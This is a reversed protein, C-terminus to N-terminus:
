LCTPVLYYGVERKGCHTENALERRRILVCNNVMTLEDGAYLRGIQANLPYRYGPEGTLRVTINNGTRRHDTLLIHLEREKEKRTQETYMLHMPKANGCQHLHRLFQYAQPEIPIQEINLAYALREEGTAKPSLAKRIPLNAVTNMTCLVARFITDNSDRMDEGSALM